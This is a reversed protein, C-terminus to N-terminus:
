DAPSNAVGLLARLRAKIAAAQRQDVVQAAAFRVGMPNVAVGNRHVEYHLHPGTSLGSSGVYGILQGARVLTGPEATIRSMHSYSTLMGGAHAIRVQRGYGGAWGARVVQGDAAAVIPSGWSAGFDIGRHMRAFRLIPHVRLGFGSTIRAQVPWQMGATARAPRGSSAADVWQMRGGVPWRLLQVDSDMGRDLGAYLLPGAVSEGSEARRNAIVLDFRDDASVESGVEIQTALARLYEGAAEASAGSARLSWYLGDGVRGRIRLPRTDVAVPIRQLALGSEGRTITVKLALSARLSLRDIRRAGSWTRAGLTIAVSTGPAISGGSAGRVLADAQVADSSVAGSRQLLRALSDGAQLTAFLDVTAREPASALPEVAATEVMPLGTRSGDAAPAIGVAALQEAESEGLPRPRGGPLPGLDPALFAVSSCLTALTALGRWWRRSFLDSGLDVVLDLKPQRAVPARLGFAPAPLAVAGSESTWGSRAHFM